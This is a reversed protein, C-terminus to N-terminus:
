TSNSFNDRLRYYCDPSLGLLALIKIQLESLDNLYFLTQQPQRIVNLSVERFAQLLKETTPRSTARNPNGPYLGQISDERKKLEKRVKFEILSLPRLAISLLHVLGEIRDERVLYMPRLSLPGKIRSFNHEVRFENRYCLVAQELSFERQLLPIAYVQWSM